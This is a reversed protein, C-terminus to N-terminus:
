SRRLVCPPTLPPLRAPPPPPLHPSPRLPPSPAPVQWGGIPMNFKSCRQFLGSFDSVGSVDWAPPHLNVCHKSSKGAEFGTWVLGYIERCGPM